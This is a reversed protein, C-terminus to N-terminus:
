GNFFVVDSHFIYFISSFLIIIADLLISLCGYNKGNFLYTIFFKNHFAVNHLGPNLSSNKANLVTSAM